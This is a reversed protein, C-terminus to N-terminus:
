APEDEDDVEEGDDDILAVWTPDVADVEEVDESFAVATRGDPLIVELGQRLARHIATM